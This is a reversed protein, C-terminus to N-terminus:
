QREECQVTSMQVDLVIHLNCVVKFRGLETQAHIIICSAGRHMRVSVPSFPGKQTRAGECTSLVQGKAAKVLFHQFKGGIKVLTKGEISESVEKLTNQALFKNYDVRTNTQKNTKKVEGSNLAQKVLGM